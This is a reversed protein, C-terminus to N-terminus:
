DGRTVLGTQYALVVLQARDHLDLKQMTRGIHTRATAPSMFLQKGIEDNSLGKAVLCLVDRERDTLVALRETDAPTVAAQEVFQSILKRTVSPTLLAEGAAVVRVADRLREPEVDKGLFGSAGARLSAFVYEELEFTTLVIVRTDPLEEVIRRTAEVGDMVPMRIDMLVIDPREARALRVAEAGDVAEGVVEIDEARDLLPRLGARILPQDDAIVVRITL